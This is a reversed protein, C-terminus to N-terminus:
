EEPLTMGAGLKGVPRRVFGYQEYLREVGGASMLGVVAGPAATSSIYKMIRDMVARAYGQGRKEPMVIVDQIYFTIRKDGVVRGFAILKGRERLSITYLSNHLGIAVSAADYAGWGALERLRNYENPKPPSEDFEIM